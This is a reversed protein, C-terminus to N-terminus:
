QAGPDALREVARRYEIRLRALDAAAAQLFSVSDIAWTPHSVDIIMFHTSAADLACNRLELESQLRDRAVREADLM